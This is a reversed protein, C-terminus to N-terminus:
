EVFEEYPGLDDEDDYEDWDDAGETAARLDDVMAAIDALLADPTSVPQVIATTTVVPQLADLFAQQARPPTAHALALVIARLEEASCATLRQEVADWFAKSVLKKDVRPM